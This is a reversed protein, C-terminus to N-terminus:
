PDRVCRFGIDHHALDPDELYVTAARVLIAPTMFSGGKCVFLTRKEGNVDTEHGTSTWEWVNGGMDYVDYPRSRGASFSGVPSTFLRNISECYEISNCLYTREDPQFDEGWPYTRGKFWRAVAEWEDATPLRKGAWKAFAAADHHTVGTVPHRAFQRPLKGGVWHRSRPPDHGTLRVFLEYEENTVEYRDIFFDGRRFPRPPNLAPFDDSGVTWSSGEPPQPVFVMPDILMRKLAGKILAEVEDGREPYISRALGASDVAAKFKKEDLAKRAANVHTLFAKAADAANREIEDRFRRYEGVGAIEPVDEALKELAARVEDWRFDVRLGGLREEAKNWAEEGRQQREEAKRKEEAARRREEQEDGPPPEPPTEPPEPPPEPPTEAIPQPEEPPPQVPHKGIQLYLFAALLAAVVTIAILPFVRAKKPKEM